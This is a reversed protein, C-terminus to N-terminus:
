LARRRYARIALSLSAMGLALAGAGAGWAWPAHDLLPTSVELVLDSVGLLGKWALLGTVAVLLGASFVAAGRPGGFHYALPLFGFTLLAEGLLMLAAIGWVEGPVAWFTAPALAHVLMGLALPLFVGLSLGILTALYRAQVMQSRTAPLGVLFTETRDMLGAAGPLIGLVFSWVLSLTAIMTPAAVESAGHLSMLSLGTLVAVTWGLSRQVLTLHHRLLAKLPSPPNLPHM